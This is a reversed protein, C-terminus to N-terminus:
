RYPTSPDAWRPLESEVRIAEGTLPHEFELTWAHLCLRDPGEEGAERPPQADAGYRHDGLLPFGLHAAHARIQHTRGTELTAEAILEPGSAGAIAAVKRFLTVANEAGPTGADVVKTGGSRLKKLPADCRVEDPMDGLCRLRYTRVIRHEVFQKHLSPNAVSRTTFLVLGSAGRDLRHVVGVYPRVLGENRLLDMLGESLTGRSSERTPAVPVGPRKDIVVFSEDRLVIDIDERTLAPVESARTHVTIREGPAVRVTPLRIRLGNVQVGGDRVLAAADEKSIGPLRKLLLRRLTQGEETPIVRFRLMSKNRWTSSDLASSSERSVQDDDAETM